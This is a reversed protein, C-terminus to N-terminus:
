TFPRNVNSLSLVINEVYLDRMTPDALIEDMSPMNGSQVRNM